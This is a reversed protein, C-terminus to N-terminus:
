DSWRPMWGDPTEWGILAPNRAEEARMQAESRLRYDGRGPVYPVGWSHASGAYAPTVAFKRITDM